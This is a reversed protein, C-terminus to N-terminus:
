QFGCVFLRLAFVHRNLRPIMKGLARPLWRGGPHHGGSRYHGSLPFCERDRVYRTFKEAVDFGSADRFAIEFGVGFSAPVM